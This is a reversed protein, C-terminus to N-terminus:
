YVFQDDAVLNSSVRYPNCLPPPNLPSSFLARSPSGYTAIRSIQTMNLGGGAASSSTIASNGALSPAPCNFASYWFVKPAALTYSLAGDSVLTDPVTSQLQPTASAPRAACLVSLASVLVLVITLWRTHHTSHGIHRFSLVPLM